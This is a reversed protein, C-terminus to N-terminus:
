PDITQIKQIHAETESKLRNLVSRAQESASDFHTFVNKEILSREFDVTYSVASTLTLEKKEARAIIQELHAIYIKLAPAKFRGEEFGVIGKEVADGLQRLWNAHKKEEAALESWTERHEPFQEAFLKYLKALLSEQKIM